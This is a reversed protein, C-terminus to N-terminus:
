LPKKEEARFAEILEAPLSWQEALCAAEQCALRTLEQYGKTKPCVKLIDNPLYRRLTMLFFLYAIM